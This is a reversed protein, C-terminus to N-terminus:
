NATLQKVMRHYGLNENQDHATEVIQYGTREYLRLANVNHLSVLLSCKVLGSARALKEAYELLHSGIGRGQAAPLIGLNSIYYEDTEAEVGGPLKIGRMMFNLAHKFGMVPFFHRFTKVNLRNLQNGECSVLMGLPENEVEAVIAIKHGFRGANRVFLQAIWSEISQEDSGFLHNALGGMSLYITKAALLADKVQAPRVYILSSGQRIM